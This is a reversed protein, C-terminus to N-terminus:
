VWPKFPVPSYGLLFAFGLALPAFNSKNIKSLSLPSSFILIVFFYPVRFVSPFISLVWLGASLM